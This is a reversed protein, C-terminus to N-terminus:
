IIDFKPMWQGKIKKFLKKNAWFDIVKMFQSKSMQYYELYEELFEQPFHNDYLRVLNLGQERTMAKRRIEIGADQTARGFGFKLYMLYAHLAFLSQDNQAFNTFTGASNQKHEDLNFKDKAVLYNRYSDWPEFYSWHTVGIKRKGIEKKPFNFWYLEREDLKSQKIIKHYGAELYNNITYKVDFIAKNKNETSGGYEVEGDEGYFILNINHQIAVNLVTSFISTLWGYYPSGLKIFGIKNLSQMAKYNPTVHVHDYNYKLFNNLNTKGVDLELPPRSTVTLPNLGFKDRIQSAVYSGDKGGSVPVICDYISNSKFKKVIQLLEKRRKEWNVEKKEEMWQCANCWGKKDFTIRPRLSNNLCNTCWSLDTNKKNLIM